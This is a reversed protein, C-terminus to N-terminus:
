GFRPEDLERGALGIPGRRCESGVRHWPRASRWDRRDGRFSVARGLQFRLREFKATARQNHTNDVDRWVTKRISSFEKVLFQCNVMSEFVGSIHAGM